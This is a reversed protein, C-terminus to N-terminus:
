DGLDPFFKHRDIFPEWGHFMFIMMEGLNKKMEDHPINHMLLETIVNAYLSAITHIFFDSIDKVADPRHAKLKVMGENMVVTYREIFNESYGELDSGGSRFLILMLNERHEELFDAVVIIFEMHYSFGWKHPETLMDMTRYTDLARDIAELTPRVLEHFIADKNPFYNYLNGVSVNAQAAIDRIKTDVYGRESFLKRSESLITNRINEKQIQM